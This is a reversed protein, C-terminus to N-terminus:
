VYGNGTGQLGIKLPLPFYITFQVTLKDSDRPTNETPPRLCYVISFM